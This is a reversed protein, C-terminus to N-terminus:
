INYKTFILPRSLLRLSNQLKSHCCICSVCYYCYFVVVVKIDPPGLEIGRSGGVGVTKPVGWLDRAVVVGELGCWLSSSSSPSLNLLKTSPCLMDETHWSGLTHEVHDCYNCCWGYMFISWMSVCDRMRTVCLLCMVRTMTIGCLLQPMWCCEAFSCWM